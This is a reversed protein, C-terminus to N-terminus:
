RRTCTSLLFQEQVADLTRAELHADPGYLVYQKNAHEGINAILDRAFNEGRGRIGDLRVVKLRSLDALKKRNIFSTIRADGRIEEANRVSAPICTPVAVSTM